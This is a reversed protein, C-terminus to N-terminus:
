KLRIGQFHILALTGSQPELFGSQYATTDVFTDPSQKKLYIKFLTNDL